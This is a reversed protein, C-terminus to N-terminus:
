PCFVKFLEALSTIRFVDSPLSEKEGLQKRDLWIGRAFKGYRVSGIADVKLNDGVYIIQSAAAKMRKAAQQFSSKSPKHSGIEESITIHDPAVFDSLYQEITPRISRSHNSLVGIQVNASQLKQMTPLVDAYLKQPLLAYGSYIKYGLEYSTDPHKLQSLMERYQAIIQSGEQPQKARSSKELPADNSIATLIQAIQQHTCSIGYNQFLTTLRQSHSLNPAISYALTLDWDFLITRVNKNVM